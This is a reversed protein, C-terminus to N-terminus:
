RPSHRFRKERGDRRFNDCRNDGGRAADPGCGFSRLAGNHCTPFARSAQRHGSPRAFRWAGFSAFSHRLDHLRVGELSAAKCVTAWPKKLDARPATGPSIHPNGEVRALGALVELAAAFPKRRPM